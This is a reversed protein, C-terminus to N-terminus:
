PRPKGFFNRLVQPVFNNLYSVPNGYQDLCIYQSCLNQFAIVDSMSFVRNQLINNIFALYQTEFNTSQGIGGALVYGSFNCGPAADSVHFGEALDRFVKAEFEVNRKAADMTNSGYFGVDQVAHIFEEMLNTLTINNSSKFTVTKTVANYTANANQNPDMKFMIRTNRQALYSFISKYDEQTCSQCLLDFLNMLMQKELLNLTSSPHYLLTAQFPSFPFHWSTQPSSFAAGGGQSTPYGNPQYTPGSMYGSPPGGIASGVVKCYTGKYFEVGAVSIYADTCEIFYLAYSRLSVQEIDKYSEIEKSEILADETEASIQTYENIMLTEESCGKFIIIIGVCLLGCIAKICNITKKNM